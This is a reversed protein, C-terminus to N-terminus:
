QQPKPAQTTLGDLGYLSYDLIANLIQKPTDNGFGKQLTLHHSARLWLLLATILGQEFVNYPSIAQLSFPCHTSTISCYIYLMNHVGYNLIVSLFLKLTANGYKNQFHSRGAALKTM